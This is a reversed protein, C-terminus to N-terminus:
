NSFKIWGSWCIKGGCILYDVKPRTGHGRILWISVCLILNLLSLSRGWHATPIPILHVAEQRSRRLSCGAPVQLTCVKTFGREATTQIMDWHVDTFWVGKISLLSGQVRALTRSLETGRLRERPRGCSNWCRKIGNLLHGLYGTASLRSSLCSLSMLCHCHYVVLFLQYPNM